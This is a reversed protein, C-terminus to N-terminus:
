RAGMVRIVMEPAEDRQHGAAALSSLSSLGEPDDVAPPRSGDGLQGSEGDREAAAALRLGAADQQVERSLEVGIGLTLETLENVLMSGGGGEGQNQVQAADIEDIGGAQPGQDGHGLLAVLCGTAEHDDAVATDHLGHLQDPELREEM